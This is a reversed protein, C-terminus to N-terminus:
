KRNLNGAIYLNQIKYGSVGRFREGGHVCELRCAYLVPFMSRIKCTIHQGWGCFVFCFVGWM